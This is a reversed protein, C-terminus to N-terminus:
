FIRPDPTILSYLTRVIFQSLPYNGMLFDERGRVKIVYQDEPIGQQHVKRVARKILDSPYDHCSVSLVSKQKAQHFDVCSLPTNSPSATLGRM